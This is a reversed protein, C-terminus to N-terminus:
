GFPDEKFKQQITEIEDVNDILANVCDADLKIGSLKKLMDFAEENSWAPKYPRRSTLADFVDAVAVIRAEIPIDQGKLGRPYGGGNVAEHHLEAINRLIDVSAMDELQFNELMHDIIYRGEVTHQKMILFEDQDLKGPKLLVSDPTGIKGIDHLPSFLFLKEIYEDDLGHQDAINIAILRAYHAMRDLHSGTEGDRIHTIDKATKVTALLNKMATLESSIVLNILHGFVDMYHLVEADFPNKQYSNFFLFGFFHGDLYMPLTYSAAYGQKKIRKSHEQTGANFIELDNVVRPRGTDLIEKLSRSDSLRAQYHSLPRNGGSSDIFTKVIDTAPDYLAAAIRDIFPYRKNLVEHVFALKGGLPLNENLKHLTDQYDFM